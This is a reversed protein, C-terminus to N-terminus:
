RPTGSTSIVRLLISSTTAFSFFSITCTLSFSITYIECHKSLTTAHDKRPQTSTTTQQQMSSSSPRCAPASIRCERTRDPLDGGLYLRGSTLLCSWDSCNRSSIGPDHRHSYFHHQEAEDAYSERSTVFSSMSTNPGQNCRQYGPWNLRM